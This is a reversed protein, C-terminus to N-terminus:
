LCVTNEFEAPGYAPERHAAARVRRSIADWQTSWSSLLKECADANAHDIPVGSIATFGRGPGTSDGLYAYEPEYSAGVAVDIAGSRLLLDYCTRGWSRADLQVFALTDITSAWVAEYRDIAAQM